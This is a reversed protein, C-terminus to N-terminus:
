KANKANGFNIALTDIIARIIKYPTGSEDLVKPLVAAAASAIAVVYSIITLIETPILAIIPSLDM